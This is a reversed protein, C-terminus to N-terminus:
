PLIIAGQDTSGPATCILGNEVYFKKGYFTVQGDANLTDFRVYGTYPNDALKANWLRNGNMNVSADVYFTNAYFDKGNFTFNLGTYLLKRSNGDYIGFYSDKERLKLKCGHIDRYKSAINGFYIGYREIWNPFDYEEFVLKTPSLNSRYNQFTALFDAGTSIRSTASVSGKAFVSGNLEFTKASYIKENTTSDYVDNPTFIFFPNSSGDAKKAALSFFMDSNLLSIYAGKVDTNGKIKSSGLQYGTGSSSKVSFGTTTVSSSFDTGNITFGSNNITGVKTGSGNYIDISGKINDIGGVSLTGTKIWDATLGIVSLINMVADGTATIGTRYTEGGDTSVFFGNSNIQFINVSNELETKDHIYYKYGGSEDERMSFHMGMSNAILQSMKATQTDHAIVEAKAIERAKQSTRIDNRSFYKKRNIRAASEASCKMNTFGHFAISVDTLFSKHALFRKDVVYCLDCLEAAPYSPIDAEFDMFELGILQTGIRDVAGQKDSNIFPNELTLMYVDSGKKYEKEGNQLREIYKVGSISISNTSIRQNIADSLVYSKEAQKFTGGECKAGNQWYKFGDVSVYVGTKYIPTGDDFIGGDIDELADINSNAYSMIKVTGNKLVANGGAFMSIYGIIQRYTYGTIDERVVFDHNAFLETDTTLGCALCCENLLQRLTKNTMPVTCDVDTKYLDDYATLYITSGYEEPEIVTFKGMYLSEKGHGLETMDYDVYVNIVAEFFDKNIYKDEDNYIALELMKSLCMGLALDTSGAGISIRCADMEFDNDDLNVVEGDKFTLIARWNCYRSETLYDRLNKSLGLM